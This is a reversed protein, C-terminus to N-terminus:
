FPSSSSKPISGSVPSKIEPSSVSEPLHDTSETGDAAAEPSNVTTTGDLSADPSNPISGEYADLGGADIIGNLIDLLEKM